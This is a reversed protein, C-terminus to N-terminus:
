RRRNHLFSEARGRMTSDPHNKAMEELAQIATRNRYSASKVVIELAEERIARLSDQLHPLVWDVDDKDLTNAAAYLVQYVMWSTELDDDITTKPPLSDRTNVFVVPKETRRLAQAIRTREDSSAHLLARILVDRELRRSHKSAWGYYQLEDIRGRVEDSRGWMAMQDIAATAVERENSQVHDLVFAEVEPFEAMMSGLGDLKIRLSKTDPEPFALLSDAIRQREKKDTIKDMWYGVDRYVGKTVELYINEGAEPNARPKAQEIREMSKVYELSHPEPIQFFAFVIAALVIAAIILKKNTM